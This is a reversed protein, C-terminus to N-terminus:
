SGELIQEALERRTGKIEIRGGPRVKKFQISAEGIKVTIAEDSEECLAPVPRDIRSDTTTLVNLFFDEQAQSSPSISIRCEPAPGRIEEPAYDEGDYSYLEEGTNLTIKSGRPLLAQLFLQGGEDNTTRLFEGVEEVPKVAHLQWTKLFSTDTSLVRDFIVFTGPRLYVIQRTFSDLKKKSYSRTLDGALYLYDGKDEFSLIDAIDYLERGKEWADADAVAGNHHPWNHHQGGDNGFPGQYARINQWSEEPDLVLVTNHAITRLLYNTDHRGGFYYYQGGDGALEQHKSILFHGNDLHQHATFRDGCKFFFHTADNEWSSRAYIYGPGQSVHSLRFSALDGKRVSEDRWLFDKYANGPTSSEPTTENFSHVAQHSPDERFRNVLIRRASLAKDRERRLRQGGSDGMPIPRRSNREGLWPYSEFMGAVARQSYFRPVSAYYDRGEVIRAVECFFLWEYLWYNIYYGEAFGGGDGALALAPAARQLYDRETEALIEAARPNEYWTAYCALGIGWHKYGYWANHFVHTESNVNADVTRNMYDHFASREEDSWSPWCLDYVIACRALDHGFNEHGIRIPAEIYALARKVALRGLESDEEIASVLAMSVMKMHDDMVSPDSPEMSRAAEVVRQYAEPRRQALSQLDHKSGLLRPHERSIVKAAGTRIQTKEATTCSTQPVALALGALLLPCYFRM